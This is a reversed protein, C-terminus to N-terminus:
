HSHYLSEYTITSIDEFTMVTTLVLTKLDSADTPNNLCHELKSLNKVVKEVKPKLGNGIAKTDALANDSNVIINHLQNEWNDNKKITLGEYGGNTLKDVADTAWMHLRVLAQRRHNKIIMIVTPIFVIYLAAICLIDAWNIIFNFTATSFPAGWGDYIYGLLSKAFSNTPAFFRVLIALIVICQIIIGALYFYWFKGLASRIMFFWSKGSVSLM